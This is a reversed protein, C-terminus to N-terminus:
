GTRQEESGRVEDWTLLSDSNDWTLVSDSNASSVPTNPPPLPRVEGDYLGSEYGKGHVYRIEGKETNERVHEMYLHSSFGQPALQQESWRGM